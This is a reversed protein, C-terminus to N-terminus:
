DGTDEEGSDNPEIEETEEDVPRDADVDDAGKYKLVKVRAPRLLVGKFVFGELLVEAVLNDRDPDDVEETMLAEHYHPDFPKGSAEVQELGEEQLITMFKNATLKMGELVKAPESEDDNWDLVRVIDDIFPLLAMVMDRKAVNWSELREKQIRKRYNDFEAQLRQLQDLLEANRDEKDDPEKVDEGAEVEPAIAEDRDIDGNGGASKTSSRRDHYEIQIKGGKEEGQTDPEEGKTGSAEKNEREEEEKKSGLM